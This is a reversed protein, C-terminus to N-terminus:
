ITSSSDQFTTSKIALVSWSNGNVLKISKVIFGSKKVLECIEDKKWYNAISPILQDLVVNHLQKITLMRSNKGYESKILRLKTAMRYAIALPFSIFFNLKFPLHKTICRLLKILPYVVGNGHRGYVWLLIRGEPKLSKYFAQLALDPSALHHLVGICMVSDFYNPYADGVQYISLTEIEIIQSSKTNEKAANISLADLDIGIIKTPKQLAAWYSNRGNGCGADLLLKQDFFDRPAASTWGAFQKEHQPDISHFLDWQKGFQKSSGTNDYNSSM